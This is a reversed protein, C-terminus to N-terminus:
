FDQGVAFGFLWNTTQADVSGGPGHLLHYSTGGEFFLASHVKPGKNLFFLPWWLFGIAPVKGAVQIGATAGVGRGAFDSGDLVMRSLGARGYVSWYSGLPQILKFDVGYEVPDGGPHPGPQVTRAACDFCGGVAESTLTLNAAAWAEVGFRGSRGGLAVRIRFAGSDLTDGLENDFRAVGFGETVYLGDAAAPSALALVALAAALRTMGRAYLLPPAM